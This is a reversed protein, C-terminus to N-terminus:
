GDHTGEVPDTVARLLDHAIAAREGAQAPSDAVFVVHGHRTRSDKTEPLVDGPEFPFDVERVFPLEALEGLGTVTALRGAALQFYSVCGFQDAIATEVPKGALGQFIAAEIDFGTALEILLPIRDGGLRAQSEVIRPGRGTLVVETHAPGFRLGSVRLFETVVETISLRDPEALPAPHLHGTEIFEPVPTVEKATVGVVHHAGGITLTEVSFEPGRLFEELLVPGTYGYGALRASWARVDRADRILRVGRSASLETPKAVVPLDLWRLVERAHEPSETAVSWVASQGRDELLERMVLKDNIRRIVEPPNLALGMAHAQECAPLQTDEWGLHVVHAVRHRRATETVLARLAAEDGLDILMLEDSYARLEALDAASQRSPDGISYVRFGAAVAKRAFHRYPMVLLLRNNDM